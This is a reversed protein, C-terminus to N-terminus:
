DFGQFGPEENDSDGFLVRFEEDTCQVNDDYMGDLEDDDDDEKETTAQAAPIDEEYIADDQTGNMANSIGCKLFARAICEEPIDNWATKVWTAVLMIDPKQFNGGKTLKAAGSAMRDSWISRLRDKCPKNICVDLPQLVSTLGGPIVALDTKLSKASAKVDDTVHARFMDWVLMSRKAHIAGPHTNWVRHLWDKTGDNDM